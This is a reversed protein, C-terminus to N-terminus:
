VIATGLQTNKILLRAHGNRMKVSVYSFDFLRFDAGGSHGQPMQNKLAKKESM